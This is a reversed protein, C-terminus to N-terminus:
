RCNGYMRLLYHQLLVDTTEKLDEGTEPTMGGAKLVTHCKVAMARM